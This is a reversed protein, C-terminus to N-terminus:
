KLGLSHILQEYLTWSMAAILTRRIMRPMIGKFYGQIGYRQFVYPVVHRVSTFKDPYLQMKTKIVDFPQTVLSAGVGAVIGASFRVYPGFTPDSMWEPGIAKKTSTYMMLYLGSFPADRLLTPVLGCTLGRVGEQAYICRWAERISSYQYVKSEFRTKIVTFPIMLVGSFSRGTMGLLLSEMATPEGTINFAGKLGHITAFYLGVGPVCRTLSPTMGRWLSFLNENRLIQSVISVMSIPTTAASFPVTPSFSRLQAPSPAQQLRTKLLDLPQFLVTSCTGSVSGILFSKFIPHLTHLDMFSGSKQESSITSQGTEAQSSSSTSKSETARSTDSYADINLFKSDSPDSSFFSHDSKKNAVTPASCNIDRNKSDSKDSSQSNSVKQSSSVEKQKATLLISSITSTAAPPSSSTSQATEQLM